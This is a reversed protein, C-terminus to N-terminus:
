IKLTITCMLKLVGLGEYDLTFFPIKKLIIKTAWGSCSYLKDKITQITQKPKNLEYWYNNKITGRGNLWCLHEIFMPIDM